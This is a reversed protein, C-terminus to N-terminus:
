SARIPLLEVAKNTAFAAVSEGPRGAVVPAGSSETSQPLGDFVAARGDLGYGPDVQGQSTLSVVDLSDSIAPVDTDLPWSALLLSGDAEPLAWASDAFTAAFDTWGHLGCSQDLAGDEDFAIMRGVAAPEPGEPPLVCGDATTGVWYFGGPRLAIDGIYARGDKSSTPAVQDMAADFRSDFDAVPRGSPTLASVFTYWCGMNGASTVALIEGDPEVLLRSLGGDNGPPVSALGGVGFTDVLRGSTDLEAVWELVCCGGGATVGVLVDGNPAEVVSYAGSPYAYPDGPPKPIGTYGDTGFTNVLHGRSDIRSVFWGNTTSGALFAGGDSAAALADVASSHSGPNFAESGGSGFSTDPQCTPGRATLVTGPSGPASSADTATSVPESLLISGDSLVTAVLSAFETAGNGPLPLTTGGVPCGNGATPAPLTAPMHTQTLRTTNPITPPSQVLTVGPPLASTRASSSSCSTTALVLALAILTLRKKVRV